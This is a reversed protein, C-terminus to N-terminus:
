NLKEKNYLKYLFYCSIVSVAILVVGIKINGYVLYGISFLLTYIM